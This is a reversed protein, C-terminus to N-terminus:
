EGVIASTQYDVSNRALNSRLCLSSSVFLLLLPPFTLDCAKSNQHVMAVLLTLFTYDSTVRDPPSFLVLFVNLYSRFIVM